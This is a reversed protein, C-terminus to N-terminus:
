LSCARAEIRTPREPARLAWVLLLLLAAAFASFLIMGPNLKAHGGDELIPQAARQALAFSFQDSARGNPLRRRASSNGRPKSRSTTPPAGLDVRALKRSVGANRSFELAHCM